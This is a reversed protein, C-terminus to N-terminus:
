EVRGATEMRPITEGPVNELNKSGDQEYNGLSKEINTQKVALWLVAFLAALFLNTCM